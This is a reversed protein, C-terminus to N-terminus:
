LRSSCPASLAKFIATKTTASSLSEKLRISIFGVSSEQEHITWGTNTEKVELSAGLSGGAFSAAVTSKTYQLAQKEEVLSTRGKWGSNQQNLELPIM